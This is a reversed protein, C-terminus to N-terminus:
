RRPPYRSPSPGGESLAPIFKTSVEQRPDSPRVHSDSTGLDVSVGEKQARSQCARWVQVERYFLFPTAAILDGRAYLDGGNDVMDPSAQGLDM